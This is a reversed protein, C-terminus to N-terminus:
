TETSFKHLFKEDRGGVHGAWRVRRYKMVGVFYASPCFNGLLMVNVLLM